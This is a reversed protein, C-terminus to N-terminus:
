DKKENFCRLIGTYYERKAEHYGGTGFMIMIGGYLFLDNDCVIGTCLSVTSVVVLAVCGITSKRELRLIYLLAEERVNTPLSQLERRFSAVRTSDTHDFRKIQQRLSFSVGKM